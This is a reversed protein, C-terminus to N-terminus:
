EISSGTFDLRSRIQRAASEIDREKLIASSVAVGIAGHAIVNSANTADIGGIGVVPLTTLSRRRQFEDLGLPDGADLKTSTTYVPGIGLYTAGREASTAIQEDSEPSYGIHFGPPALSSAHELPLDDVGLHVGEAGLILALDIRDNIILPTRNARCIGILSRAQDLVQRDSLEKFRLQIMTVGGRIADRVAAELRPQPGVVLYLRFRDM